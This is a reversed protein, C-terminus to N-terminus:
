AAPVGGLVTIGTGRLGVPRVPGAAITPQGGSLVGPGNLQDRWALSGSDMVVAPRLVARRRENGARSAGVLCHADAPAHRVVFRGACEHASAPAAHLLAYLRVGG